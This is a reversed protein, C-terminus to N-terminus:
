KEPCQPIEKHLKNKIRELVREEFVVVTEEHMYGLVLAGGLTLAIIIPLINM